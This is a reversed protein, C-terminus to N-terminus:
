AKQQCTQCVSSKAACAACLASACEACEASLRAGATKCNGCTGIASTRDVSVAASPKGLMVCITVVAAAIAPTHETLLMETRMNVAGLSAKLVGVVLLGGITFAWFLAFYLASSLLLKKM